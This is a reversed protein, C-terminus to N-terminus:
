EGPTKAAVGHIKQGDGLHWRLAKLHFNEFHNNFDEPSEYMIPTGTGCDGWRCCLNDGAEEAHVIRIHKELTELNM